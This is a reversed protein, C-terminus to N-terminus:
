LKVVLEKGTLAFYLNQLQHLYHMPNRGVMGNNHWLFYDPYIGEEKVLEMMSNDQYCQASDNWKFGFKFLIEESLIIPYINDLSTTMQIRGNTLSISNEISLGRISWIKDTGDRYYNKYVVSNGIRLENAQIM